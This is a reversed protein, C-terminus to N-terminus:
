FYQYLCVKLDQSSLSLEDKILKGNYILKLNDCDLQFKEQILNKLERGTM